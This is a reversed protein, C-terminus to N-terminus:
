AKEIFVPFHHLCIVEFDAPKEGETGVAVIVIEKAGAEMLLTIMARMTGGMSVIDDVIVVKKGRVLEVAAKSMHFDHKAPTTISVASASLYGDVMDPTRHKPCVYGPLRALKRMEYYLSIGKGYPAVIVEADTPMLEFLEEAIAETLEVSEANLNLYSIHVGPAVPCVPLVLSFGALTLSYTKPITM